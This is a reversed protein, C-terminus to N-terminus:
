IVVDDADQSAFSTKGWLRIHNRFPVSRLPHASGSTKGVPWKKKKLVFNPKFPLLHITSITLRARPEPVASFYVRWKQAKSKTWKKQLRSTTGTNECYRAHVLSLPQTHVISHLIRSCPFAPSSPETCTKSYCVKQGEERPEALGRRARCQTFHLTSEPCADIDSQTLWKGLDNGQTEPTGHIFLILQSQIFRM